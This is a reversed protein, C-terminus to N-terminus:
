RVSLNIKTNVLKLLMKRTHPKGDPYPIVMDSIQEQYIVKKRLILNNVYHRFKKRELQPKNYNMYAENLDRVYGNLQTIFIPEPISRNNTIDWFQDFRYKQEVKSYLINIDAAGIIPYNVIDNVDATQETLTLLGSVQETNYIIAEDFNYSLDHWRDDCGYNLICGDEDLKPQHLYSELQYEISRVTNVTQGISEVLEIEWPHQVNYYNNFVDCRVNHKWTAGSEYSPEVEDIQQDTCLTAVCIVGQGEADICDQATAPTEYIGDDLVLTYPTGDPLTENCRCSGPRNEGPPTPQTWGDFCLYGNSPKHAVQVGTSQITKETAYNYITFHIYTWPQTPNLEYTYEQWGDYHWVTGGQSIDGSKWLLEADEPSGGYGQSSNGGYVLGNPSSVDSFNPGQFSDCFSGCESLCPYMSGWIQFEPRNGHHEGWIASAGISPDYQNSVVNQQAADVYTGTLPNLYSQVGGTITIGLDFGKDAALYIEGTYTAGPVMPKPVGNDDRLEQSGGERWKGGAPQTAQFLLGLYTTGFRPELGICGKGLASFNKGDLIDTTQTMCDFADYADIFNDCDDCCIGKMCPIWPDPLTGQPGQAVVGDVEVTGSETEFSINSVSLEEIIEGNSGIFVIPAIYDVPATLTQCCQGLGEDTSNPVLVSGPPCDIIIECLGTIPNLTYGPPCYPDVLQETKTTLFHNLSSITLEPHWDHFSIWGKIKPDYSATWSVDKFNEGEELPVETIVDEYTPDDYAVSRCLIGPGGFVLCDEPTAPTIGDSALVIDTGEPCYCFPTETIEIEPEGVQINALYLYSSLQYASSNTGVNQRRANKIHGALENIVENEFNGTQGLPVNEPQVNTLYGYYPRPYDGAGPWGSAGLFPINEIELVKDPRNHNKFVIYEFDQSPTFKAIYKNWRPYSINSVPGMQFGAFDVCPGNIDDAPDGELCPLGTYIHSFTNQARKSTISLANESGTCGDAAGFKRYQPVDGFKTGNSDTYGPFYDYNGISYQWSDWLLEGWDSSFGWGLPKGLTQGEPIATSYNTSKSPDTQMIGSQPPNFSRALQEGTNLWDGYQYEELYINVPGYTGWDQNEVSYAFLNGGQYGPPQPTPADQLYFAPDFLTTYPGEIDTYDFLDPDLTISPVYEQFDEMSFPQTELSTLFANDIPTDGLMYYNNAETFFPDQYAFAPHCVSMGFPGDSGFAGFNDWDCPADTDNCNQNTGYILLSPVGQFYRDSVFGPGQDFCGGRLSMMWFSITYEVGAQMPYALKQSVGEHWDYVAGGQNWAKRSAIMGISPMNQPLGQGGLNYDETPFTQYFDSENGGLIAGTFEGCPIFEPPGVCNETFEIITSTVEEGHADLEESTVTIEEGECCQGNGQNYYYTITNGNEDLDPDPCRPCLPPSNTWSDATMCLHWPEGVQAWGTGDLIPQFGGNVVGLINGTQTTDTTFGDTPEQLIIQECIPDGNEDTTLTFGEECNIIPELGYCETENIIFGQEPDFELCPDINCPEYDKKCFYVIDYNPDYVSQCGIGIVPNDAFKSGEIEPFAQILRSPLYTNFWQKMGADAINNLGQGSVNFIKGQAQSMYYIGAPTNIVSRSDECSGYEHPLDATTIQKMPQSFLGGDGITIKTDLDTTLTDVGEFLLPALHPFLIMAGTKSIPKITTPANKFDKYNNPLYVRWFDQKAEKFAQLSYLVRKTYHDYCTAAVNPDYDRGQILSYSILQSVLNSKSLSYDYKYFNGDEIIDSHFLGNLDTFRSWDYYKEKRGEGQARHAVNLESEVFFDNIGSNHTYMFARRLVFLSSGQDAGGSQTITNALNTTVAGGFGFDGSNSDGEKDMNRMASPIANGSSWDFDFNILPSFLNHMDYKNTDM